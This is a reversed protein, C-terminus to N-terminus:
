KLDEKIKDFPSDNYDVQYKFFAISNGCSKAEHDDLWQYLDPYDGAIGLDYSLWFGREEM